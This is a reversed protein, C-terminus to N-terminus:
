EGAHPLLVNQKKLFNTGAPNIKQSNISLHQAYKSMIIASKRMVNSLIYIIYQFIIYNNNDTLPLLKAYKKAPAIYTTIQQYDPTIKTSRLEKFIYTKKIRM